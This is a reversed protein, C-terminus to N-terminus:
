TFIIAKQAADLEAANAFAVELATLLARLKANHEIAPATPVLRWNQEKTTL